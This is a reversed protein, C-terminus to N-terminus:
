GPSAGELEDRRNRRAQFVRDLIAARCILCIVNGTESATKKTKAGCLLCVVDAHASAHRESSRQFTFM